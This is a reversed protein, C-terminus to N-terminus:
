KITVKFEGSATTWDEEISFKGSIETDTINTLEFEAMSTKHKNLQVTTGGSLKIGMEATKPVDGQFKTLDYAGKELPMNNGEKQLNVVFYLIAEGEPVAANYIDEEPVEYTSIFIFATTRGVYYDIKGALTGLEDWNIEGADTYAGNTSELKVSTKDPSYGQPESEEAEEEVEEPEEDSTEESSESAEEISEVTETPETDDSDTIVESRTPACGITVFFVSVIFVILSTLLITKAKSMIKM